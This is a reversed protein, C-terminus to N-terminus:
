VVYHASVAQRHTPPSTRQQVVVECRSRKPDSAGHGEVKSLRGQLISHLWVQQFHPDESPWRVQIKCAEVGRGCHQGEGGQHSSLDLSPWYARTCCNRLVEWVRRGM